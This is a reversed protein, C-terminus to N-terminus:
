LRTERLFSDMFQVICPHLLKRLVRAEQLAEIHSGPKAEKNASVKVVCLGGDHGNALVTGLDGTSGLVGQMREMNVTSSLVNRKTNNKNSTSSTTNNNNTTTTSNNGDQLRMDKALHVCGYNGRGLQRLIMFGHSHACFEESDLSPARRNVRSRTKATKPQTQQQPNTRRGANQMGARVQNNQVIGSTALDAM